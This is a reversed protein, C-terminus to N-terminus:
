KVETKIQELEDAIQKKIYENVLTLTEGAESYAGTTSAIRHGAMLYMTRKNPIITAILSITATIVCLKIAHKVEWDEVMVGVSVIVSATGLMLVAITFLGSLSNAVDALYIFLM